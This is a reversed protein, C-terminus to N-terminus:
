MSADFGFWKTAIRSIDGNKRAKNIASNFAKLLETDDKRIGVGVGNGFAGGSFTPGVLVVPKKSKEAYDTFAVAAALAVDCRGSALDLNVEDQTKYTRVNVKGVDGSELFNQHITATQVCVTKGALAGTITKLDKKVAGSKKTLNIGESTQMGELNSGKMVALSAVEDAYGQSFNIAKKREDTISMGAMIADFKRMILAPIMGDWDQEVIECQQGIYRCLTWALEVEFGILKGSADKSNWPPYAGETGIRIKDANASVSLFLTILLGLSFRKIMNMNGGFIYVYYKV